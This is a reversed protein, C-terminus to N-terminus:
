DYATLHLFLIKDEAIKFVFNSETHAFYESYSNSNIDVTFVLVTEYLGLISNIVKIFIDQHGQLNLKELQLKFENESFIKYGYIETLINSFFYITEKKFTEQWNKNETFTFISNPTNLFTKLSNEMSGGLPLMTFEHDMINNPTTNLCEISNLLGNAYAIKENLLNFNDIRM